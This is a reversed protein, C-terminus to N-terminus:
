HGVFILDFAGNTSIQYGRAQLIVEDYVMPPMQSAHYKWYGEVMYSMGEIEPIAGSLGDISYTMDIKLSVAFTDSGKRYSEYVMGISYTGSGIEGGPGIPIIWYYFQLGPQALGFDTFESSTAPVTGVPLIFDDFLGDRSPSRYVEYASAGPILQWNLTINTGQVNLSLSKRFPISDGFGAGHSIMAGPFGVFTHNTWSSLSIEYARGLVAVTDNVGQGMGTIHTVWRGNTDMWRIFNANPVLGALQSINIASFPELPLSLSNLGPEYAETWKGATNSTTSVSGNMDVARITYYYERPSTGSAAGFDTWNTGKPDPDSTTNHTPIAFDFETQHESRYILYYSINADSPPTWDLRIDTGGSVSARLDKSPGIPPLIVNIMVNPFPMTMNENNWKVYEVRSKPYVGVPVWGLQSCTAEYSVTWSENVLIQSVNWEFVVGDTDNYIGDPFDTFSGYDVHIHPPVVDRIMPVSDTVNTDRGAIDFVLFGIRSYIEELAEANKAYYYRGGTREAIEKLLTENVGAGLGITFIVINNDVADQIQQSTFPYNAFSEHGDTLLIEVWLNSSNGYGILESNAAEIGAGINTGGSADITDINQKIQAYNSSLHDGTPAPVLIAVDDFDVVAGRDPVSMNDVYKKAAELRLDLPDNVGMSESSDIVFVTDQPHQETITHGGGFVELTIRTIENTGVGEVYIQEPDAFKLPELHPSTRTTLTAIDKAKNISSNAYVEAIMESGVPPQTPITVNVTFNYFASAGLVGTDLFGDSNTDTIPSGDQKFFDIQWPISANVTFSIVDNLPQNVLTLGYAIVDGLDGHDIQDPWVSILAMTPERGFRWGAMYSSHDDYGDHTGNGEPVRSMSEGPNHESSWGVMDVYSGLPDYLYLNEGTSTMESFLGPYNAPLLIHHNQMTTLIVDIPIIYANDCVIMFNRINVTSNGKYIIEVFGDGPMQPNFLVENLVIEPDSIWAQAVNNSGFTSVWTWTWYDEYATGNWYRVTSQGSIPDPVVGRQGYGFHDEVWDSSSNVLRLQEGDDDLENGTTTFVSHQGPDISNISWSGGVTTNDERVIAYNNLNDSEKGSNYLEIREGGPGSDQIETFILIPGVPVHIVQVDDIYWGAWGAQYNTDDNWLHYGIIIEKDLFPTLDFLAMEWDFSFGAYAGAGGGPPTPATLDVSGPYGGIPEIYIWSAGGDVSVEVFGGDNRFPGYIDYYHWFKLVVRDSKSLNIAPMELRLDAGREYESDLNTGWCDTTSHCSSPGILTPVGLEWATQPQVGPTWQGLSAPGGAEMDDQFIPVMVTMIRMSANNSLVADGMLMTTVTLTYDGPENPTFLWSVSTTEDSALDQISSIPNYTVQGPGYIELKVDFSQAFSGLNTIFATANAQDGSVHIDPVIFDTVAVDPSPTSVRIYASDSPVSGFFPIGDVRVIDHTSYPTGGPVTIEAVIDLTSGSLLLGTDPVGPLGGSDVLPTVGDSQFLTVPWGLDDVYAIDIIESIAQLNRITLNFSQTTGEPLIAHHDPEIMVGDRVNATLSVDDIYWGPSDVFLDSSFTFRFIFNPSGDYQSLDVFVETWNFRDYCWAMQGGLLNGTADRLTTDYYPFPIPKAPEDVQIWTSGADTSVEIIGGDWDHTFFDDTDLYMWFRLETDSSLALDFPPSELYAVGGNTYNLAINTGWANSGSQTSNPGVNQPTGWEWETGLVNSYARWVGPGSEMDDIWPPPLAMANISELSLFAAFSSLLISTVTLVSLYRSLSKSRSNRGM